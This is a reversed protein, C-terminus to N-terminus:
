PVRTNCPKVKKMQQIDILPIPPLYRGLESEKKKFDYNVLHYFREKESQQKYVINYTTLM